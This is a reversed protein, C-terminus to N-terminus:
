LRVLKELVMTTTADKDADPNAETVQKVVMEVPQLMIHAVMLGFTLSLLLFVLGIGGRVSYRASYKAILLTKRGDM